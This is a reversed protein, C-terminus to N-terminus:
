LTDAVGTYVLSIQIALPAIAAVFGVIGGRVSPWAPMTQVKAEIDLAANFEQLTADSSDSALADAPRSVDTHAIKVNEDKLVTLMRHLQAGGEVFWLLPFIAFLALWLVLYEDLGRPGQSFATLLMVYVVVIFFGASRWGQEIGAIVPDRVIPFPASLGTNATQIVALVAGVAILSGWAGVVANPTFFATVGIDLWQKTFAPELALLTAFWLAGVIMAFAFPWPWFDFLADTWKKIHENKAKAVDESSNGIGSMAALEFLSKEFLARYHGIAQGAVALPITLCGVSIWYPEEGAILLISETVTIVAVAIIV